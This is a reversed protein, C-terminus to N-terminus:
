ELKGIDLRYKSRGKNYQKVIEFLYTNKRNTYQRGNRIIQAPTIKKLSNALSDPDFGGRYVHFMKSMSSIIQASVADM